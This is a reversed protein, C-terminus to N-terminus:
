FRLGDRGALPANRSRWSGCAPLRHVRCRRRTLHPCPPRDGHTRAIRPISVARDCRKTEAESAPVRSSEFVLAPRGRVAFAHPGSTRNSADLSATIRSGVPARM